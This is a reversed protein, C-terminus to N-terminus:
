YKRYLKTEFESPKKWSYIKAFCLIKRCRLFHLHADIPSAILRGIKVAIRVVNARNRAVPIPRRAVGFSWRRPRRGPTERPYRVIPLASSGSPPPFHSAFRRDSRDNSRLDKNRCDPVWGNRDYNEEADKGARRAYVQFGGRARRTM